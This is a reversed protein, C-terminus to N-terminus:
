NKTRPLKGACLGSLERSLHHLCGSNSRRFSDDALPSGHQECGRIPINLPAIISVWIAETSCIAGGSAIRRIWRTCVTVIAQILTSAATDRKAAQRARLGARSANPPPLAMSSKDAPPPRHLNRALSVGSFTSLRAARAAPAKNNASAAKTATVETM